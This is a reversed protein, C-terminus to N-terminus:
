SGRRCSMPAVLGRTASAGCRPRPRCRRGRIQQLIGGAAFLVLPLWTLTDSVYNLSARVALASGWGFAIGGLLSAAKGCGLRRLFLFQFVAGLILHLLMEFNRAGPASLLLGPWALPYFVRNFGTALHPIGSGLYPNWLPVEGQRMRERTYLDLPYLQIIADNQRPNASTVSPSMTKWPYFAEYLWDTPLLVSGALIGPYTLVGLFLLFLFPLLAGGLIRTHAREPAKPSDVGLEPDVRAFEM